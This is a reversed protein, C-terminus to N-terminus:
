REKSHRAQKALKALKAEEEALLGAITRRKALDTETKLLDRYHKINLEVITRASFNVSIVGASLMPFRLREGRVGDSEGAYTMVPAPKGLPLSFIYETKADSPVYTKGSPFPSVRFIRLCQLQWKGCHRM